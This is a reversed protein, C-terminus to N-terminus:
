IKERVSLLILCKLLKISLNACQVRAERLLDNAVHVWIEEIITCQWRFLSEIDSSFHRSSKVMPFAVRTM